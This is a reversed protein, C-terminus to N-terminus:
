VAKAEYFDGPSRPEDSGLSKELPLKLMVLLWFNDCTRM